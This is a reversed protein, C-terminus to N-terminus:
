NKRVYLANEYIECIYRFGQSTLWANVENFLSTGYYLEERSVELFIVSVTRMIKPSAKLMTLEYGQMDLWMFDIRDVGHHEAWEDLTQTKVEITENFTVLPHQILHDKPKLLSSSANSTGSSVYFQAKGTQSGLALEYCRVNSLNSTASVLQHYLIPVPEFAYITSGPWMHAMEVTDVGVHAGAELIVPNKPLFQEIYKKNANTSICFFNLVGFFIILKNM